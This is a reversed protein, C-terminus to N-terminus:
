ASRRRRPNYNTAPAGGTKIIVPIGKNVVLTRILKKIHTWEGGARGSGIPPMQVITPVGTEQTLDKATRALTTLARGLAAYDIPRKNSASMTGRQAVMNAIFRDESVPVFQVSGLTYRSLNQYADRPGQGHAQTIAHVFGAKKSRGWIGKDNVIHALIINFKDSDTVFEAANGPIVKLHRQVSEREQRAPRAEPAAPAQYVRGQAAEWVKAQFDAEPLWATGDWVWVVEEVFDHLKSYRTLEGTEPDPAWWYIKRQGPLGATGQSQGVYRGPFKPADTKLKVKKEKRRRALARERRTANRRRRPNFEWDFDDLGELLADIAEQTVPPATVTQAEKPMKQAKRLRRAFYAPLENFVKYAVRRGEEEDEPHKKVESWIYDMGPLQAVLPADSGLLSLYTSLAVLAVRLESATAFIGTQYASFTAGFTKEFSKEEGKIQGMAQAEKVKETYTVTFRGRLSKNLVTALGASQTWGLKGMLKRAQAMVRTDQGARAFRPGGFMKTFMGKPGWVMANRLGTVKELHGEELVVLRGDKKVKRNSADRKYVPDIYHEQSIGMTLIGNTVAGKGRGGSYVGKFPDGIGTISIGRVRKKANHRRSPNNRRNLRDREAEAKAKSYFYRNGPQVYYRARKYKKGSAGKTVKVVRHKGFQRGRGLMLEYQQTKAWADETQRKEAARTRGKRTPTHTGPQLYGHKQLQSTAIAFAASRRAADSRRIGKKKDQKKLSKFVGLVVRKFQEETPDIEEVEEQVPAPNKHKAPVKSAAVFQWRNGVRKMWRGHSSLKYNAAPNSRATRLHRKNRREIFDVDQFQVDVMGQPRLAVIEGVRGREIVTSGVQM